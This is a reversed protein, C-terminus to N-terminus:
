FINVLYEVGDPRNRGWVLALDFRITTINRDYRALFAMGGRLLAARKKAPLLSEWAGLCDPKTKRFKVEVIAMTGGKLAVLDLESGLVRFNRALIAWGQAQLQNAILAEAERSRQLPPLQQKPHM